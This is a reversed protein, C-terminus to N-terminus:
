ISQKPVRPGAACFLAGGGDIVGVVWRDDFPLALWPMEGHYKLFDAQTRDSGVLVIEFSKGAARLSNYTKVLQPTFGRCPGCRCDTLIALFSPATRDTSHIEFLCRPCSGCCEDIECVCWLLLLKYSLLILYSTTHLYTSM